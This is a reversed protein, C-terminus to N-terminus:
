GRFFMNGLFVAALIGAGDAILAALVAHRIRTIQVAGFYIALVYFTTETSGQMTSAIFASLSDPERAVLDSMVGFAGSGSLPRVIAMPLTEPPMGIVGTVPSLLSTLIDLAGSARFMGIAVLIAVLFPIIKLAVNFGEKAGECLSEYIHVDRSVGWSVLLGIIFPILWHTISTLFLASGGNGSIQRFIEFGLALIFIGIFVPVLMRKWGTPRAAETIKCDGSLDGTDGWSSETTETNLYKKSSYKKDIRALFTAAIIATITSISTALFSPLLIGGPDISGAASRVAIVGLPLITVSSTNIALFLCMANTATGKCPNLKDLEQMAKIGLPTAANGLGMINASMNMVMASMAPHESPVDPFLRSMVPKLRRAILTMLGADEAVKVLGLWLAMAGVLGLALTVATKASEFSANTLGEMRGTFLAIFISSFVLSIWIINIISKKEKKDTM